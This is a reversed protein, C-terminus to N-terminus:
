AGGGGGGEDPPDPALAARSPSMRVPIFSFFVTVLSLLAGLTQPFSGFYILIIHHVSLFACTYSYRYGKLGPNLKNRLPPDYMKFTTQM